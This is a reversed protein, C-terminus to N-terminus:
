TTIAARQRSPVSSAMTADTTVPSGSERHDVTRAIFGSVVYRDELSKRKREQWREKEPRPRQKPPKPLADGPRDRGALKYHDPHVNNRKSM